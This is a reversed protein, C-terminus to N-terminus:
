SVLQFMSVSTLSFLIFLVKIRGIKDSLTAWVLRGGANFISIISISNAASAASATLGALQYHVYM